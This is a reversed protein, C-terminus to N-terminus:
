TGLGLAILPEVRLSHRISVLGGVLGMLIITTAAMAGSSPEFIIPINPPFVLAIGFTALSGIIVGFVTVVLIQVLVALAVIANPTGIAKLMGIQPVKQLTQIQFFGGIVLMGILLAFGNQTNLTSQQETYGPTNEYATKRDVAEIRDVQAELRQRMPGLQTPDELQVAVVNCDPTDSGGSPVAQPRIRDWNIIPVFVSPRIGFKRSDSIGVVNLTYFEDENGQASRVIITDGVDVGTVLAVTRDIIAEDASKRLLGTGRLTPPEGPKGPEVGILSIDLVDAQEGYIISASSFGISGAARVGDVNGVSRRTECGVRSSAIQLRATDQYVILDADLKEIYERNGSGLGEGLAAIFLILVTILAVVLSFLLFRGRNRWVEKLALHIATLM